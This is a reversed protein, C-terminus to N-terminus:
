KLWKAPKKNQMHKHEKAHCYFCLVLLNFDENNFKDKDIHHVQLLEKTWCATCWNNARAEDLLIRAKKTFVAPYSRKKNKREKKPKFEEKLEIKEEKKYEKKATINEIEIFVLSEQLPEQVPTFRYLKSPRIDPSNSYCRICVPKEHNYWLGYSYEQKKRKCIDCILKM